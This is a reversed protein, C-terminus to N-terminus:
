PRGRTSLFGFGRDEPRGAPAFSPPPKHGDLIDLWERAAEPSSFHPGGDWHDTERRIGVYGLGDDTEIILHGNHDYIDVIHM